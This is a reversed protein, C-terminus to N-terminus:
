QMSTATAFLVGHLKRKRSLCMKPMDSSFHRIIMSKLAGILALVCITFDAATVGKGTYSLSEKCVGGTPVIIQEKEIQREECTLNAYRGRKKQLCECDVEYVANKEIILM